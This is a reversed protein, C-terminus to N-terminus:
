LTSASGEIEPVNEELIRTLQTPTIGKLLNYAWFGVVRIQGANTRNFRRIADFVTSILLTTEPIPGREDDPALCTGTVILPPLGHEQDQNSTPLIQAQHILPKSGWREAAALPLYLVDLGSPPQLYLMKEVSNASVNRSRAFATQLSLIVNPDPDFIVIRLEM